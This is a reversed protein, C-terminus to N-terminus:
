LRQGHGLVSAEVKAQYTTMMLLLRIPVSSEGDNGTQIEPDPLRAHRSPLTPPFITLSPSPLSTVLM